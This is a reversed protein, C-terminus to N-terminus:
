YIILRRIKKHGTIIFIGRQQNWDSLNGSFLIKGSLDYIEAFENPLQSLYPAALSFTNEEKNQMLIGTGNIQTEGYVAQMFGNYNREGAVHIINGSVDIGYAIEFEPKGSFSSAHIVGATDVLAVCLDMGDVAGSYAYGTLLVYGWGLWHLDFAADGETPHMPYRHYFQFSGDSAFGAMFFDFYGNLPGASEGCVLINNDPLVKLNQSGTNWGPYYVTSWLEQGTPSLKVVFFEYDGNARPQDGVLVINGDHDIRVAQFYQSSSSNGQYVWQQQGSADYKVVLLQNKQQIVEFGACVVSEDANFAVAHFYAPHGPQYHQTWKTTLDSNLVVTTGYPVAVDSFGTLAVSGNGLFDSNMCINNDPMPIYVSDVCECSEISYVWYDNDNAGLGYGTALVKQGTANLSHVDSIMGHADPRGLPLYCNWQAFSLGASFVTPSLVLALKLRFGQPIM